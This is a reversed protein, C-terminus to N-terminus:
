VGTGKAHFKDIAKKHSRVALSRSENSSDNSLRKFESLDASMLRDYLEKREKHSVIEKVLSIIILGTVAIVCIVNLM